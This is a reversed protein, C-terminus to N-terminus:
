LFGFGLIRRPAAWGSRHGHFGFIVPLEDNQVNTARLSQSEQEIQPRVTCLLEQWDFAARPPTLACVFFFVILYFQLAYLGRSMDRIQSVVTNQEREVRPGM